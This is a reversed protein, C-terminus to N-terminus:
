VDRMGLSERVKQAIPRKLKDILSRLRQNQALDWAERAADVANMIADQALTFKSCLLPPAFGFAIV